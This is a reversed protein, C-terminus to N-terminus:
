GEFSDGGDDIRWRWEDHALGVGFIQEAGDLEVLLNVQAGQVARRVGVVSGLVLNRAVKASQRRWVPAACLRGGGTAAGAVALQRRYPGGDERFLGGRDAVAAGLGVVLVEQAAQGRWFGLRVLPQPAAVLHQGAGRRGHRRGNDFLLVLRQESLLRRRELDRRRAVYQQARQPSVAVHHASKGLSADYRQEAREDCGVWM